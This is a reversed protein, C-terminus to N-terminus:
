EMTDYLYLHVFRCHSTANSSWGRLVDYVETHIVGGLVLYLSSDCLLPASCCRMCWIQSVCEFFLSMSIGGYFAVSLSHADRRHIASLLFAKRLAM